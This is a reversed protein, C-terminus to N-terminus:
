IKLRLYIYSSFASNIIIIKSNDLEFFALYDIEALIKLQNGYFVVKVTHGDGGLQGLLILETM